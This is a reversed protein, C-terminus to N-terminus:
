NGKITLDKLVGDFYPDLELVTGRTSNELVFDLSYTKPVLDIGWENAALDQQMTFKANSMRSGVYFFTKYSYRPTDIKEVINYRRTQEAGGAFVILVDSDMPDQNKKVIHAWFIDKTFSHIVNTSPDRTSSIIHDKIKKISNNFIMRKRKIPITMDYKGDDTKVFEDRSIPIPNNNNLIQYIALGTAGVTYPNILQAKSSTSKILFISLFILTVIKHKM